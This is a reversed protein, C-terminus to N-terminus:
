HLMLLFRYNLTTTLVAIGNFFSSIFFTYALVARDLPEANKLMEFICSGIGISSHKGGGGEM